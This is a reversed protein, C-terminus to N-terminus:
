SNVSLSAPGIGSMSAPQDIGLLSIFVPVSYSCALLCLIPHTLKGSGRKLNAERGVSRIEEASTALAVADQAPVHAVRPLYETLQRPRAISVLADAKVDVRGTHTNQPTHVSSCMYSTHTDLMHPIVALASFASM